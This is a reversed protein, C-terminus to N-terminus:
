EGAKWIPRPQPSFKKEHGLHKDTWDMLLDNAPSGAGVQSAATSENPDIGIKSLTPSPDGASVDSGHTIAFEVAL